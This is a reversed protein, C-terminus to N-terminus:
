EKFIEVAIGYDDTYYFIPIFIFTRNGYTVEEGALYYPYCVTAYYPLEGIPFWYNYGAISHFVFILPKILSAKNTYTNFVIAPNYFIGKFSTNDSARQPNFLTIGYSDVYRGVQPSITVNNRSKLSSFYYLSPTPSNTTTSVFGGLIGTSHQASSDSILRADLLINGETENDKYSSISGIYFNTMLRNIWWQKWTGPYNGYLLEFSHNCDLSCLIGNQNVFIHQTNIPISIPNGRLWDIYSSSEYSQSWVNTIDGSSFGLGGHIFAEFLNSNNRLRAKGATSEVVIKYFLAQNGNGTSSLILQTSTQSHITWGHNSAGSAINNLMASITSVNTHKYYYFKM